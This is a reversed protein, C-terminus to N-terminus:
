KGKIAEIIKPVVNCAGTSSLGVTVTTKKGAGAKVANMQKKELKKM